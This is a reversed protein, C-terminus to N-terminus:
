PGAVSTKEIVVVRTPQETADGLKGIRDIVATGQTVTGVIAYQPPLGGDGTMVFFQSGSTGNPETAGKAM